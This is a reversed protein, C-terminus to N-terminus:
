YVLLVSKKLKTWCNWIVAENADDNRSIIHGDFTLYLLDVTTYPMHCTADDQQFLVSNVDIDRLARLFDTIITHYTKGTTM